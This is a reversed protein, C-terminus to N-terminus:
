EEERPSWRRLRKKQSQKRKSKAKEARSSGTPKSVRRERPTYLGSILIQQLRELCDIKNQLQSRARHSSVLLEGKQTLRTRLRQMMKAKEEPHIFPSAALPFRVTVRTEVKNVNQGGPGGARSYHFELESVPIRFPGVELFGHYLPDM